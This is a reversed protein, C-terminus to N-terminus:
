NKTLKKLNREIYKETPLLSQQIRKAYHISDLIDKNKEEIVQKQDETEKNKIEILLKQKRTTKLSSFIFGAFIFVLLLVCSMLMLVIQQKKKEAKAVADKKDQEAKTAAEKKEFEYNMEHKTLEKNKGENFLSDKLLTYLRYHELAPKYEKKFSYLESISNEFQMESNLIGLEKTTAIAQKLYYEAETFKQQKMLLAGLNGMNMAQRNKDGIEESLKLAKKLYEEADVLDNKKQYCSSINTYRYALGNKNGLEEDLKLAKFYYELANKFDNKEQYINGINGLDKAIANKNGTQEDIKLAKFYNGIAKDFEKQMAFINGINNLTQATKEKEGNEEYIKSANFAYKLAQPYNGQNTYVSGMRSYNDAVSSRNGAKESLKLAKSYYELAEVYNGQDKYINGINGITKLRQNAIAPFTNEKKEPDSNKELSDLISLVRKYNSLALDFDGNLFSISGLLHLSAASGLPWNINKSLLLAKKAISAATDRNNAYFLKALANLHAVKGTDEKDTKLLSNLSDIKRNQAVFYLSSLALILILFYKCNKNM